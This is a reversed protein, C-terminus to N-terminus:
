QVQQAHVVNLKSSECVRENDICLTFLNVKKASILTYLPQKELIKNKVKFLYLNM